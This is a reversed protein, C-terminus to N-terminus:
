GPLPVWFPVRQLPTTTQKRERNPKAHTIQRQKSCTNPQPELPHACSLLSAPLCTILVGPTALCGLACGKLVDSGVGAGAGRGGYAISRWTKTTPTPWSRSSSWLSQRRAGAWLSTSRRTACRKPANCSWTQGRNSRPKVATQGRNSRPNSRVAHAGASAAYSHSCACCCMRKSLSAPATNLGARRAGQGKHARCRNRLGRGCWPEADLAGGSAAAPATRPPAGVQTVAISYWRWMIWASILM